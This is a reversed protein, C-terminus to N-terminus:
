SRTPKTRTLQQFQGVIIKWFPLERLEVEFELCTALLVDNLQPLLAHDLTPFFHHLAHDGYSALNVFLSHKGESKVIVAALQYVGFDLSKLEDGDHFIERHHHGANLAIFGFIFSTLFIIKLWVSLVTWIPSSGFTFMLAPLALPLADDWYLKQRNVCM